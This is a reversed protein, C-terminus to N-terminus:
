PLPDILYVGGSGDTFSMQLTSRGSTEVGAGFAFQRVTRPARGGDLGVVEVVDGERLVTRVSGDPSARFVGVDSAGSVGVGALTARFYLAGDDTLGELALSAYSVGALGPVPRGAAAVLTLSGPVDWWLAETLDFYSGHEDAFGHIAVDGSGNLAGHIFAALETGVAFGPAPDGAGFGSIPLGGRALLELAGARNTWVSNWRAKGGRLVSGFLVAGSDNIAPPINEGDGGFTPSSTTPGFTTKGQGSVRAGERALVQLGGGAETWLAEDNNGDIRRGRVWAQLVTAGDSRAAFSFLPGFVGTPDAEFTAGAIGPAPMGRVLVSEWPGTRNRWLGRNGPAVSGDQAFSARALIQEGRTLFGFGALEAGPPMGPLRDGALLLREFPSFRDSWLGERSGVAADEIAGVFTLHGRDIDPTQLVDM